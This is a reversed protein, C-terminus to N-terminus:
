GILKELDPSATAVSTNGGAARDNALSGPLESAQLIKKEIESNKEAEIEARLEARLKDRYNPDQMEALRQQSNVHDYAFKAPNGSQNMQMILTPNQHAMDVFLTEKEDYDTHMSRMMEVSLNTSQAQLRSDFDKTIQSIVEDPNEWFDPKPQAERQSNIADLQQQLEQRKRTEDIAKAKFAAVENDAPPATVEEGTTEAVETEEEAVAEVVAEAEPAVEEVEEVTGNLAQELDSM